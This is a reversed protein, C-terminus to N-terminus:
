SEMIGQAVWRKWGRRIGITSGYDSVKASFRHIHRRCTPYLIDNQNIFIYAPAGCPLDFWNADCPIPVEPIDANKMRGHRTM